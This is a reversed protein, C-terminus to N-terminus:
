GDKDYLLTINFCISYWESTPSLALNENLQPRHQSDDVAAYKYGIDVLEEVATKNEGLLNYDKKYNSGEIWDNMSEDSEKEKLPPPLVYPDHITNSEM